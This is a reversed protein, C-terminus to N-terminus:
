ILCGCQLMLCGSQLIDDQRCLGGTALPPLGPLLTVSEGKAAFVVLVLPVMFITVAALISDYGAM